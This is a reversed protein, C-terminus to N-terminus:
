AKFWKGDDRQKWGEIRPDGKAKWRSITSRDCGLIKALEHTNIGNEEIEKHRKDDELCAIKEKLEMVITELTTLRDSQSDDLRTDLGDDILNLLLRKACLNLSEGEQLYSELQKEQSQKISFTIVTM